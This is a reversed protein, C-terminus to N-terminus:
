WEADTVLNPTEGVRAKGPQNTTPFSPILYGVYDKLPYVYPGFKLVLPKKWMVCHGALLKIKPAEKPSTM